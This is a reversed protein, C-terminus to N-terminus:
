TNRNTHNDGSIIVNRYTMSIRLKRESKIGNFNDSKRSAIGHTWNYRAEGSLIVLSRSELMVDIKEKTKLNIFDMVCNSGLSVSIITGGFCPECDVHNAIGQGTQYENIILQDPVEPLFGFQFLRDAIPKAWSPLEGLFMSYDISRAKYDYKWGYHQVRRKLDSLWREKNITQWLSQHEEKTIFEPVYKLGVIKAMNSESNFLKPHIGRNQQPKNTDFM